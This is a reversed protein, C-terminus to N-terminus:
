LIEAKAPRSAFGFHSDDPSRSLTATFRIRLKALKRPNVVNMGSEMFSEDLGSLLGSPCTMWLKFGREDIVLLKLVTGFRTERWSANLIYGTVEQRGAPVPEADEALSAVMDDWDSRSRDRQLAIVIADAMNVSIDYGEDFRAKMDRLFSNSGSYGTFFDELHGFRELISARMYGAEALRAREEDARKAEAKSAAKARRKDRLANLRALEEQSYLKVKKSGLHGVGHCRWCVLGTARWHSSQGEGSCRPCRIKEFTHAKHPGDVTIEVPGYAIRSFDSQIKRGERTYWEM